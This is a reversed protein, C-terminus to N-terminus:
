WAKWALRDKLFLIMLFIDSINKGPKVTNQLVAKSERKSYDKAYYHKNLM